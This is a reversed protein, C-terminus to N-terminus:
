RGAKSLSTALVRQPVQRLSAAPQPPLVESFMQSLSTVTTPLQLVPGCEGHDVLDMTLLSEWELSIVGLGPEAGAGAGLM